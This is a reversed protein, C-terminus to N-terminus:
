IHLYSPIGIKCQIKLSSTYRGGGILKELVLVSPDLESAFDNLADEPSDYITPDVYLKHGIYPLEVANFFIYDDNNIYLLFRFSQYRLVWGKTQDFSYEFSSRLRTSWIFYFLNILNQILNMVIQNM